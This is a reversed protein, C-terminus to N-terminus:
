SSKTAAISFHETRATAKFSFSQNKLELQPSCAIPPSGCCVIELLQSWVCYPIDYPRVLRRGELKFADVRAMRVQFFPCDRVLREFSEADLEKGALPRHGARTTMGIWM